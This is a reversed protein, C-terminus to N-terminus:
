NDGTYVFLQRQGTGGMGMAADGLVHATFDIYGNALDFGGPTLGGDHRWHVYGGIGPFAVSGHLTRNPFPSPFATDVDTQIEGALTPLYGQMVMSYNSFPFGAVILNKLSQVRFDLNGNGDLSGRFGSVPSAVLNPISLSGGLWLVPVQGPLRTLAATGGQFSFGALSYNGEALLGAEGNSGLSGRFDLAGFGANQLSMTGGIRLVTGGGAIFHDVVEGPSLARDYIAIEDIGGVWQRDPFDGNNGILVSQTNNPIASTYPKWADLVGDVYLYKCFGDHIGVVHHWLNDQLNRASPLDDYGVGGSGGTGFSLFDTNGLRHIRWSTDGKTVVAQWAKTFKDVRVWAEVSFGGGKNRNLDYDSNPVYLHSAGGFAAATNADGTLAGQAGFGSSGVWGAPHPTRAPNRISDAAPPPTKGNAEGLRWYALPDDGYTALGSQGAVVAGYSGPQRKLRLDANPMAFGPLAFAPLQPLPIEYNGDHGITGSLQLDVLGPIQFHANRLEIQEVHIALKGNGLTFPGLKLPTAALDNLFELVDSSAISAAFRRQGMAPNGYTWAAEATGTGTYPVESFGSKM